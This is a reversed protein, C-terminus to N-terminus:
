DFQRSWSYYGKNLYMYGHTLNGKNLFINPPQTAAAGVWGEGGGREGGMSFLLVFISELSLQVWLARKLAM